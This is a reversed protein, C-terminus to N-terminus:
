CLDVEEAGGAMEQIHAKTKTLMDMKWGDLPTIRDWDQCADQFAQLDYADWAALLKKLFDCERSTTFLHDLGMFGEVKQSASVSDGMAMYLLVAQFFHGKAAHQGLKRKLCSKGQAEYIEAAKMLDNSECVLGAVKLLCNNSDIEKNGNLFMTAAQEYNAVATPIDKEEEAMEAIQKYFKAAQDFKGDECYVEIVKNFNAVAQV